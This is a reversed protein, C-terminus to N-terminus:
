LEDASSAEEHVLRGGDDAAHSDVRVMLSSADARPQHFADLLKETRAGGLQMRLRVEFIPVTTQAPFPSAFREHFSSDFVNQHAAREIAIM